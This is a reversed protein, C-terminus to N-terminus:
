TIVRQKSGVGTHNGQGTQTEHPAGQEDVCTMQQEQRVEYKNSNNSVM